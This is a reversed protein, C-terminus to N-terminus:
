TYHTRDIAAFVQRVTRKRSKASKLLTKMELHARKRNAKGMCITM